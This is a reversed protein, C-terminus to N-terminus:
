RRRTWLMVGIWVALGVFTVIVSMIPAIGGSPLKTGIWYWVLGIAIVALSSLHMLCDAWAVLRDRDHPEDSM